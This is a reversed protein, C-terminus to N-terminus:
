RWTRETSRAPPSGSRRVSTNRFRVALMPISVCFRWHSMSIPIDNVTETKRWTTRPYVAMCVPTMKVAVVIPTRIEEAEAPLSAFRNVCRTRTADPTAMEMAPM